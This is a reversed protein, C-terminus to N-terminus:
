QALQLWMQIEIKEIERLAIEVKKKKKKVRLGEGIHGRKEREGFGDQNKQTLENEIAKISIDIHDFVLGIKVFIKM